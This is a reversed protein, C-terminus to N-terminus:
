VKDGRPGPDQRPTRKGELELSFHGSSYSVFDREGAVLALPPVVDAGLRLPVRGVPELDSTSGSTRLDCREGPSASSPAGSGHAAAHGCPATVGPLSGGQRAPRGRRRWAWARAAARGSGACSGLAARPPPTWAEDALGPGLELLDFPRGLRLQDLADDDHQDGADDDADIEPGGVEDELASTWSTNM